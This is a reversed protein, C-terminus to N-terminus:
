KAATRGSSVAAACIVITSLGSDGQVPWVASASRLSGTVTLARGVDEHQVKGSRPLPVQVAAVQVEAARGQDLGGAIIGGRACISVAM